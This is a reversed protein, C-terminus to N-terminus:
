LKEWIEYGEALGSPISNKYHVYIKKPNFTDVSFFYEGMDPLICSEHKHRYQYTGKGELPNIENLYVVAKVQGEKYEVEFEYKRDSKYHFTILSNVNAYLFNMSKYKTDSKKESDIEFIDVRKYKGKLYGYVKRDKIANRIELLLLLIIASVIGILIEKIIDSFQSPCDIVFLALGSIILIGVQLSINSKYSNM